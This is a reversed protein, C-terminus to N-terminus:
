KVWGFMTAWQRAVNIAHLDNCVENSVLRTPEVGKEYAIFRGEGEYTIQVSRDQNQFVITTM